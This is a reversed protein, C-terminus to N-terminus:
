NEKNRERKQKEKEREKRGDKNGKKRREKRGEKKGRNIKQGFEMKKLMAHENCILKLIQCNAQMLM